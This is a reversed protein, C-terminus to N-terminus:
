RSLAVPRSSVRHRAELEGMMEPATGGPMLGDVRIGVSAWTVAAAETISNLERKMAGYAPLPPVARRSGISSTNVIAGGGGGGSSRMHAAEANMATWHARFNVTCQEDLVDDSPVSSM